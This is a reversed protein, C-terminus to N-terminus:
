TKREIRGLQQATGRSLATPTATPDFTKLPATDFPVSDTACITVARRTALTGTAAGGATDGVSM